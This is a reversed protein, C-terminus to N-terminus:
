VRAFRAPQFSFARGTSRRTRGQYLGSRLVAVNMMGPRMAIMRVKVSMWYVAIAITRSRSRPVSSCSWTVGTVRKSIMRPFIKGNTRM